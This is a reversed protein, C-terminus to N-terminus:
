SRPTPQALEVSANKPMAKMGIGNKSYLTLEGTSSTFHVNALVDVTHRSEEFPSCCIHACPYKSKSFKRFYYWSRERHLNEPVERAHAKRCAHRQHNLMNRLM